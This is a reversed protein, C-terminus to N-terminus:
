QDTRSSRKRCRKHCLKQQDQGSFAALPRTKSLELVM